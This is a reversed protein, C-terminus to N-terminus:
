DVVSAIDPHFQRRFDVLCWYLRKFLNRLKFNPIRIKEVRRVFYTKRCDIGEFQDLYLVSGNQMLMGHAWKLRSSCCPQFQLVVSILCTVKQFSSITEQKWYRQQETSPSSSRATPSTLCSCCHMLLSYYCHVPNTWTLPFQFLWPFDSFM